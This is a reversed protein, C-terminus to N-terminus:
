QPWIVSSDVVLQCMFPTFIGLVVFRRPDTSNYHCGFDFLNCWHPFPIASVLDVPHLKLPGTLMEGAAVVKIAAIIVCAVTYFFGISTYTMDGYCAMAVGTVIPFVSM